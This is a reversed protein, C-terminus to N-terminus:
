ALAANACGTPNCPLNQESQEAGHILATRFSEVTLSSM